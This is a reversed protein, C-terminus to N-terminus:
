KRDGTTILSLRLHLWVLRSCIGPSPRRLRGCKAVVDTLDRTTAPLDATAPPAGTARLMGLDREQLSRGKPLDAGTTAASLLPSSLPADSSQRNMEIEKHQWQRKPM